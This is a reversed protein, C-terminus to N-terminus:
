SVPAMRPSLGSLLALASAPFHLCRETTVHRAGATGWTSQERWRQNECPLRAGKRKKVPSRVPKPALPVGPRDMGRRRAPNLIGPRRRQRCLGCAPPHPSARLLLTLPAVEQPSIRTVGHAHRLGLSSPLLASPLSQLFDKMQLVATGM